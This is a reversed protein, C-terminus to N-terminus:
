HVAIERGTAKKEAATRPISVRLMGNEFKADIKTDDADAPLTLTRYFAGHYSEVRHWKEGKTEERRKREGEVVLDRGECRVHVDERKVDPLEVEVLYEREKECINVSPSWAGPEGNWKTEFFRNLRSSMQELERLPDFRMIDTTRRTLTM